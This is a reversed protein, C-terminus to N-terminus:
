GHQKFRKPMKTRHRHCAVAQPYPFDQDGLEAAENVLDKQEKVARKVQETYTGSGNWSWAEIRQHLEVGSLEQVDGKAYQELANWFRQPCCGIAKKEYEAAVWAEKTYGGGATVETPPTTAQLESLISEDDQVEGMVEISVSTSLIAHVAVLKETKSTSDDPVPIKTVTQFQTITWSAQLRTLHLRMALKYAAFPQGSEYTPCHSGRAAAASLADSM